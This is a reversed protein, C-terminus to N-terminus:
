TKKMDMNDIIKVISIVAAVLATAAKLISEFLKLIKVGIERRKGKIYRCRIQKIGNYSYILIYKSYIITM